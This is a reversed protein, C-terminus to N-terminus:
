KINNNTTKYKIIKKINIEIKEFDNKHSFDM